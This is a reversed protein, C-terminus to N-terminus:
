HCRTCGVSSKALPRPAPVNFLSSMQACVADTEQCLQDYREHSFGFEECCAEEADPLLSSVIVGAVPTKELELSRAEDLTAHHLGICCVLVDPLSWNRAMWAGAQAHNWSLRDDEVEHLPRDRNKAWEVTPLYHTSWQSLLIPLAMDQLLAGTFAEAEDGPTTAAAINQAFVARQLSDQWFAIRKFGAADTPLRRSVVFVTVLSAIQEMGLMSIAHSVSTVKHRLGFRASNVTSLIRTSLGVDSALLKGLETIDVSEDRCMELLRTSVEPLPAIDSKGFLRAFNGTALAIRESWGKLFMLRGWKHSNALDDAPRM